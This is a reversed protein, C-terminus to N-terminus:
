VGIVYNFKFNGCVPGDSQWYATIETASTVSATVTILDIEAEDELTGKGTYPGIAKTILVPRGITMGVGAITFKGSRGAIAGLDVEDVTFSVPPGVPGTPGIPGAPGAPGDLGTVIEVGAASFKTWKM